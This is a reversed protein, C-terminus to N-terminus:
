KKALKNTLISIQEKLQEVQKELMNSHEVSRELEANINNINLKLSQIENLNDNFQKYQRPFLFYFTQAKVEDYLASDMVKGKRDLLRGKSITQVNTLILSCEKSFGDEPKVRRYQKKGNPNDKPHYAALYTDENTTTPVVLVYNKVIELVLVPHIYAIEPKYRTGLDAIYIDGVSLKDGDCEGKWKTNEKKGIWNQTSMIYDVADHQVTDLILEKLNKELKEYSELIEKSDKATSSKAKDSKAIKRLLKFDINDM